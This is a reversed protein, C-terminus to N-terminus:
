QEVRRRYSLAEAIHNYTIPDSNDLDAITRAVRLVRHYARASLKMRDAAQDLLAQADKEPTAFRDLLDGSLDANVRLTKTSHEVQQFREQQRQRAAMVRAAITASSEGVSERRLDTIKVAPVDIHIDIRDLLPGSLKSQYDVACRPARNCALEADSLHGCRCPNMAAILQFNAPYSIHHNARAILTQGTELPQRMSELTARAFEPLEDLFLVGNHALSIEGPQARHGGGVLAPLSASHHPDRFPRQNVIRGEELQGAVSHITSVELAEEPSLSPLISPLRAALMSKGAGPPGIMLLNHGGAAAIELARKASTQGRVDVFDPLKVQPGDDNIAIPAEPPTLVQNGKFHNILALLSGPALIHAESIWAAEAGCDQPCILGLGTDHAHMTAPLVGAVKRIRGDLSLEGMAAFGELADRPIVEMAALLALAIPLDFHSGVKQVDAPALNITIRKPPISLGMGHLASRVRERAETVAKDPLGVITFAPMGAAIQAQVEITLAHIGQFTVTHVLSAM